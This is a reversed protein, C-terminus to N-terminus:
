SGGGETRSKCPSGDFPPCCKHTARKTCDECQRHRADAELVMLGRDVALAMIETESLGNNPDLWAPRTRRLADQLRRARAILDEPFRYSRHVTRSM